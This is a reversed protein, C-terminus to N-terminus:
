RNLAGLARWEDLPLHEDPVNVVQLCVHDAGAAFYEAVREGIREVSGWAVTDDVLRDSGGDRLDADAYGLRRFNNAYNPLAFYGALHQRALDRARTPDAELVVGLEPALRAREGIASRSARLYEATVLYPHSGAARDRVIGQMRPGLAALIAHDAPDLGASQLGDLFELMRAVPRQYRGPEDADVLPAHSNGLGLVFRDGYTAITKEYAAVVDAPDHMWINLIGTAALITQTAGLLEGAVGLPDGGADPLWFATFGADELLGAAEQCARRDANYRLERSWIGIGTLKEIAPTLASM